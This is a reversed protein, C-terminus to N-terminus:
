LQLILISFEIGILNNRKLLFLFRVYRLYLRDYNQGHLETTMILDSQLSQYANELYSIKNVLRVNAQNEFLVEFSTKRWKWLVYALVLLVMVVIGILIM